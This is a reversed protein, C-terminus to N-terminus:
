GVRKVLVDDFLKINSKVVMRQSYSRYIQSQEQDPLGLSQDDLKVNGGRLYDSRDEVGVSPTEQSSFREASGWYSSMVNTAPANGWVHPKNQNRLEHQIGVTNYIIREQSDKQYILILM